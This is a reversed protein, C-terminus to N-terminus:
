CRRNKWLDLEARAEAGVEQFQLALNVGARARVGQGIRVGTAGGVGIARTRATNRAARRIM